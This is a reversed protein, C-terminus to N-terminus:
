TVYNDTVRFHKQLFSLKARSMIISLEPQGKFADSSHIESINYIHTGVCHCIVVYGRLLDRTEENEGFGIKEIFAIAETDDYFVAHSITCRTCLNWWDDDMVEDVINTFSTGDPYQFVPEGYWSKNRLEQKTFDIYKLMKENSSLYLKKQTAYYQDWICDGHVCLLEEEKEQSSSM